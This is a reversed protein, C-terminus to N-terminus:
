HGFKENMQDQTLTECQGQTNMVNVFAEIAIGDIAEGDRPPSAPQPVNAELKDPLPAPTTTTTPNSNVKFSAHGQPIAHTGEDAIQIDTEPDFSKLHLKPKEPSQKPQTTPNNAEM